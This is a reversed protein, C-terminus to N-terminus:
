KSYSIWKVRVKGDEKRYVFFGNKPSYNIKDQQLKEILDSKASTQTEGLFSIDNDIMERDKDIYEGVFPIYGDKELKKLVPNSIIKSFKDSLDSKTNEIKDKLKTQSRVDNALFASSAIGLAIAWNKWNENIQESNNFENFKKITNM